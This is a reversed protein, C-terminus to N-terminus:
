LQLIRIINLDNSYLYKCLVHRLRLLNNVLYVVSNLYTMKTASSRPAILPLMNRWPWEWEAGYWTWCEMSVSTLGRCWMGYITGNVSVRGYVYLCTYICIYINVIIYIYIYSILCAVIIELGSWLQDTKVTSMQSRETFMVWSCCDTHIHQAYCPYVPSMRFVPVFRVRVQVHITYTSFCRIIFLYCAIDGDSRCLWIHRHPTYTHHWIVSHRYDRKQGIFTSRIHTYRHVYASTYVLICLHTYMYTHTHTQIRIHISTHTYAFSVYSKRCSISERYSCVLRKTCYFSCCPKRTIYSQRVKGRLWHHLHQETKLIRQNILIKNM